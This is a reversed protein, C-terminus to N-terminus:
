DLTPLVMRQINPNFYWGLPLCLTSQKTETPYEERGELQQCVPFYVRQKQVYYTYSNFTRLVGDEAPCSQKHATNVQSLRLPPARM